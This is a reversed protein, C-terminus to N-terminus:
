PAAFPDRNPFFDPSVRMLGTVDTAYIQRLRAGIEADKPHAKLGADFIQRIEKVAADDPNGKRIVDRVATSIERHAARRVEFVPSGLDAIRPAIGEPVKAEVIPGDALLRLPSAIVKDDKALTTLEYSPLGKKMQAEVKRLAPISTDANKDFTMMVARSKPFLDVRWVGSGEPVTEDWVAGGSVVGVADILPQGDWSAHTSFGAAPTNEIRIQDLGRQNPVSELHQEVETPLAGGPQRAEAQREAQFAFANWGLAAGPRLLAVVTVFLFSPRLFPRM